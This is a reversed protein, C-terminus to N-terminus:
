TKYFQKKFLTKGAGVPDPRDAIILDYKNKLKLHLILLM